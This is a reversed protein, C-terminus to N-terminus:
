VGFVSQAPLAQTLEELSQRDYLAFFYERGRAIKTSRMKGLAVALDQQRAALIGPQSALLAANIERIDAFAQRRAERNRRAGTRLESSHRVANARRELLRAAAADATLHRQPNHRLDRLEHRLRRVDELTTGTAPLKFHLTASACAMHPPALGYYEAIISDSIRDYKAGGIGHIFLDALLLRAWITLTLARPRLQWGGLRALEDAFSECSDLKGAPIVGMESDGAFLRLTDSRRQVFLRRRPESPRYAWIPAECRDVDVALDPIPRGVGRVRNAKRYAALARNYCDALRPANLLMDMALANCWIGSVRRDKQVVGLTAEVAQRAAVVQDVWDRAETGAALARFFTPMPSGDYRDGLANRAGQEFRAIQQATQRPIQEYACGPPVDAFRVQRVALGAEDAAPVAITTQKVADSDVVLNVAVGGIAAALRTSVVHKAWVGPHIFGPQHGTVIVPRDDGGVLAERTKRRWEALPSGLLRTDAIRLADANVRVATVWRSPHPEVLIGGHEAPARLKSFDLM